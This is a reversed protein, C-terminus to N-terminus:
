RGRSGRENIQDVLDRVRESQDATLVNLALPTLLKTDSSTVINKVELLSMPHMSFERLGLGLLLRIYRTDGAMEGCMAVPIGAQRGAVITLYILKLVSPHLPDYLYNVEDDIRDIALTFQILDNTGISLFDLQRAFLHASIAAAPVEIMGGIPIHPDYRLGERKLVGQTEEIITLVQQLEQLNSLMPIMIRVRGFASARLIARLQPQFLSPDKLCLRIARLGLAPNTAVPAGDYREDVRKEAGLDLTRITLPMGELHSLVRLYTELQEEEGPPTPRNMYLFETRYLGVGAAAVRSVLQTDDPLEMNVLLTIRQGDLTVSPANRLKQLAARRRRQEARRKQYYGLTREDPAAVVVGEQGDVVLMEGETLLQCASRTGVVAPINLSRALIATHSMSGGFETVFAAIGQQQMLLTDAPTLDETILIYGRLMLAPSRAPQADTHLLLQQILNVVHEVDDRRTRLYPDDMAEFIRILADGQLKVAWEANCHHTRILQNPGETLTADELMLLHTDIFSALEKPTDPPIQDRISKLHMRAKVTAEQLRAIEHEIEGVRIRREGVQVLSRRLLVAKGIAIGRSIGIGYLAVSV